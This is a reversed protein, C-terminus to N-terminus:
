APIKGPAPFILILLACVMKEKFDWFKISLALVCFIFDFIYILPLSVCMNGCSSKMWDPNWFIKQLFLHGKLESM